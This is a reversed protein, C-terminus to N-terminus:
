YKDCLWDDAIGVGIIILNIDNKANKYADEYYDESLFKYFKRLDQSQPGLIAVLFKSPGLYETDGKRVHKKPLIQKADTYAKILAQSLEDSPRMKPKQTV